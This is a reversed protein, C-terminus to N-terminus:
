KVVANANKSKVAIDSDSNGSMQNKLVINAFADLSSPKPIIFEIRKLEDSQSGNLQTTSIMYELKSIKCISVVYRQINKNKTATCSKDWLNITKSLRQTISGVWRWNLQGDSEIGEIHTPKIHGSITNKVLSDMTRYVNKGDSVYRQNLTVKLRPSWEKYQHRELKIGHIQTPNVQNDSCKNHSILNFRGFGGFNPTVSIGSYSLPQKLSINKQGNNLCINDKITNCEGYVGIGHYNNYTCLNNSVYNNYGTISIGNDGSNSVTNNQILNDHCDYTVGCLELKNLSATCNSIENYGGGGSFWVGFGNNNIFKVGKINNYNSKKSVLAIATGKSSVQRGNIISCRSAQIEVNYTKANKIICNLIKTDNRLVQIVTSGHLKSASDGDIYLKNLKAGQRLSICVKVNGKFLLKPLHYDKGVLEKEPPIILTDSLIYISKAAPVIVSDYCRLAKQFVKTNDTIGDGRAGLTTVDIISGNCKNFYNNTRNYISKDSLSYFVNLTFIKGLAIIFNRRLM